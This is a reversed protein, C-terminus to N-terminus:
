AVTASWIGQLTRARARVTEVGDGPRYLCSGIGAGGAGAARWAGLNHQDVGGVPVLEVDPPLVAQWAKMGTIGISDSPFLKLSRAGAAVARFAETPTAVGPCPRLGLDVSAAIVEPNADPALVIQAGAARARLVDATSLVTGAGVVCTEGLAACLREISAFPDPSNLPVEIADFGESVLAAGIAEVEDPTIGRLIAVLGTAQTTRTSTM